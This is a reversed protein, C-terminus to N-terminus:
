ARTALNMGHRPSLVGTAPPAGIRSLEVAIHSATVRLSRLEANLERLARWLRRGLVFQVALSVVVIASWIWIWM